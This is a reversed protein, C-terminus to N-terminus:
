SSDGIYVTKTPSQQQLCYHLCSETTTVPLAAPPPLPAVLLRQQQQLRHLRAPLRPRGDGSVDAGLGAQLAGHAEQLHAKIHHESVCFPSYKVVQIHDGWRRRGGRCRCHGMRERFMGSSPDLTQYMGAAMSRDSAAVLAQRGGRRCARTSAMQLLNYIPERIALPSAFTFMCSGSSSWNTSATVSREACSGPM